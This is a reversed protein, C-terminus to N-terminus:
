WVVHVYTALRMASAAQGCRATKTVGILIAVVILLVIVIIATVLGSNDM